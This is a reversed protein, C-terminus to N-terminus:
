ADFYDNAAQGYLYMAKALTAMKANGSNAMIKMISNATFEAIGRSTEVSILSDMNAPEIGKVNIVYWDGNPEDIATVAFRSGGSTIDFYSGTVSLPTKSLLNIELDSKVVVSVSKIEAPRSTIGTVSSLNVDAVNGYYGGNDKTAMDTTNYSFYEQAAAAYDLTAKALGKLEDAKAGEYEDIIKKCYNYVSYEITDVANTGAAADEANAYVKVTIPETSQAPAQIVQLMRAGDYASSADNFQDLDKLQVTQTQFDPEESANSAHNYEVTAYSDEGYFEADIYVNQSIEDAVTINAGNNPETKIVEGTTMNQARNEGLNADLVTYASGDTNKVFGGYFKANEPVSSSGTQVLKKGSPVTFNGGNVTIHGQGDSSTACGIVAAGATSYNGSEITVYSNEDSWVAYYQASGTADCDTVTVNANWTHLGCNLTLDELEISASEGGSNALNGNGPGWIYLGYQYDAPSPTGVCTGNMIKGNTGSFLTSWRGGITMTKGNLDVTVGSIDIYHM